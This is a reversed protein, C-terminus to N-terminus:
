SSDLMTASINTLAVSIFFDLSNRKQPCPNYLLVILTIAIGRTNLSFSPSSAVSAKAFTMLSAPRSERLSRAVFSSRNLTSSLRLPSMALTSALSLSFIALTSALSLPSMALTLSSTALNSTLSLSSIAFDSSLSLSSIAFDSSLSLSSIAFTLSSTALTLSSLELILSSTPLILPSNTKSLHIKPVTRAPMMDRITLANKICQGRLSHM